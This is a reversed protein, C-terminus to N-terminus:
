QSVQDFLSRKAPIVGFRPLAAPTVGLVPRSLIDTMIATRPGANKLAAAIGAAASSGTTAKVAGAAIEPGIGLVERNAIRNTARELIPKSELLPGLQANLGELNPFLTQLEEKLGRGEQQRVLKYGTETNMPYVEGYIDQKMKQAETAPLMKPDLRTEVPPVSTQAPNYPSYQVPTSNEKIFRAKEAEAPPLDKPLYRLDHITPDARQIVKFPDVEAAPNTAIEQDVKSGLAGIKRDLKIVGGESPVIREKLLTRAVNSAEDTGLTTSPKLSTRYLAQAIGQGIRPLAEGVGEQLAGGSAADGIARIDTPGQQGRFQQVKQYLYDGLGAGAAGGAVTGMPGGASGVFGGITAGGVQSATRASPLYGEIRQILSQPKEDVNNFDTAAPTEVPVGGYKSRPKEDVPIGGYKSQPM